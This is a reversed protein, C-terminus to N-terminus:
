RGLFVEFPEPVVELQAGPRLGFEEFRGGASEVVHRTRSRPLVVRNPAVSEFVKQVTMSQDMLAVDIPFKMGFTHISRVKPLILVGELHDRGLLGKARSHRTTAVEAPSVPKNDVRLYAIFGHTRATM